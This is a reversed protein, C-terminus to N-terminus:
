STRMLLVHRNRTMRILPAARVLRSSRIRNMYELEEASARVTAEIIGTWKQLNQNPVELFELAPTLLDVRVM